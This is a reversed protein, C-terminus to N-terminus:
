TPRIEIEHRRVRSYVANCLAGCGGYLRGPAASGTKQQVAAPDEKFEGKNFRRRRRYRKTSIEMEAAHVTCYIINYVDAKGVCVCVCVSRALTETIQVRVVRKRTTPPQITSTSLFVLRMCVASHTYIIRVITYIIIVGDDAIKCTPLHWLSTYIYGYMNLRVRARDNNYLYATQVIYSNACLRHLSYLIYLEIVHITYIYNYVDHKAVNVGHM